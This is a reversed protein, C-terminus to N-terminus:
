WSSVTQMIFFGSALMQFIAIAVVHTLAMSLLLVVNACLGLVQYRVHLNSREKLTKSIGQLNYAALARRVPNWSNLTHHGLARQLYRRHKILSGDESFRIGSAIDIAQLVMSARLFYGVWGLIFTGLRGLVSVSCHLIKCGEHLGMSGFALSCAILGFYYTIKLARDATIKESGLDITGKVLAPILLLNLSAVIAYLGRLTLPVATYRSEVITNVCYSLGCLDPALELVQPPKYFYNTYPSIYDCFYSTKNSVLM